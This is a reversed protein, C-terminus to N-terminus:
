DLGRHYKALQRADDGSFFWFLGPHAIYECATSTVLGGLIV